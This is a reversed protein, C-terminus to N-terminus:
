VAHNKMGRCMARKQKPLSNMPLFYQSLGRIIYDVNLTETIEVDDSLLDFQRLAKGRVLTCFYQFKVNAELTEPATFTINFKSVFM